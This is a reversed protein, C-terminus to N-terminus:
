AEKGWNIQASNRKIKVDGIYQRFQIRYELRRIDRTIWSDVSFQNHHRRLRSMRHVLHYYMLTYFKAQQLLSPEYLSLSKMMFKQGQRLTDETEILSVLLQNYLTMHIHGQFYKRNIARMINSYNDEEITLLLLQDMTIRVKNNELYLRHEKIDEQYSEYPFLIGDVNAQMVYLGQYLDNIKKNYKRYKQLVSKNFGKMQRAWAVMHKLYKISSKVLHNTLTHNNIHNMSYDLNSVDNISYHRKEEEYLAYSQYFIILDIMFELSDELILKDGTYDIYDYVIRVLLANSLLQHTGSEFLHKHDILLCGECSLLNAYDKAKTTESVLSLIHSKLVSAQTHLLYYADFFKNFDMTEVTWTKNLNFYQRLSYDTLRQIDDNNIVDVRHHKFIKTKAKIHLAKITDYGKNQYAKLRRKLSEINKGVGVYKYMTYTRNAETLIQYHELAQHGKNKNQHRFDKDYLMLMQTPHDTKIWISKSESTISETKVDTSNLNVNFGHFFDLQIDGSTEFSYKIYIHRHKSDLFRESRIIIDVDNHQYVTHRYLIDEDIDLWQKHERAQSFKPNLIMQDAKLLSFVPNFLSITHSKSTDTFVSIDADSEEDLVGKLSLYQNSLSFVSLKTKEDMISSSDVHM